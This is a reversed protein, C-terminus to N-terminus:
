PWGLLLQSYVERIRRTMEQHRFIDTFRDRGARGLRQRMEPDNGLQILAKALSQIEGPGVLFGTQDNIVVERAGDIDYSVVPLGTILGQPLARALGERYSTHVLADAAALHAPIESPPILGVFRFRDTMGAAAVKAQLENRLIGDGVLLFKAQPLQQVVVKAAEILDDHGKLHFLRAVKVFVVDEESFEFRARMSHRYNAVADLFPEVEMGSYITVFKDRPAVGASVLLDTMADAVSILRHCKKAARRECWRYFRRAATSQYPHFPAGHVSHVIGQVGCQWAAERGLIGGKASHTHVIDPQFDRLIKKLSRLAKWDLLPNISRRLTAVEAVKLEGGRGQELLGGEPGLSPGTILLVEDDFMRVLDLCNLLTNEQAGGVIMRTIVHAVRM